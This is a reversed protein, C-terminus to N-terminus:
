GEPLNPCDPYYLTFQNSPLGPLRQSTPKTQAHHERGWYRRWENVQGITASQRAPPARCRWRRWSPAVRRGPASVPEAANDKYKSIMPLSVACFSLSSSSYVQYASSRSGEIPTRPAHLNRPAAECRVPRGALVVQRAIGQLLSRLSFDLARTAKGDILDVIAEDDGLEREFDIDCAVNETAVTTPARGPGPQLAGPGLRVAQPPAPRSYRSEAM